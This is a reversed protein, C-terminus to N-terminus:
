TLGGRGQNSRKRGPRYNAFVIRNHYKGNTEPLAQDLDDRVRLVISLYETGAKTADKSVSKISMEYYGEPIPEYSNKKEVKGVTFFAM